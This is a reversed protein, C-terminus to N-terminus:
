PLLIRRGIKVEKAKNGKKDVVAKKEAKWEAGAPAIIQCGELTFTKLDDIAAESGKATVTANNIILTENQNGDKGAIGWKGTAELTIDSITLTTSYVFVAGSSSSAMSLFGNGEITTAEDCSLPAFTTAKLSNTGSVVIKLGKIGKNWIVNKNSGVSVTVNKMTMTKKAPDYKFEGGEAVTVGDIDKLANCNDDAVQTGAIYLKYGEAMVPSGWLLALCLFATFWGITTRISKM